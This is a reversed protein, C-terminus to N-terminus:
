RWEHQEFDRLADDAEYCSERVKTYVDCLTEYNEAGEGNYKADRAIKLASRYKEENEVLLKHIYNITKLQM